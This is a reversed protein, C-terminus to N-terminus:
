IFLFILISSKLGITLGYILGEIISNNVFTEKYFYYFINFFNFDIFGINFFISYIFNFVDLSNISLYGGLFLISTLICM